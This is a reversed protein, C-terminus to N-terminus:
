ESFKLDYNVDEEFHNEGLFQAMHEEGRLNFGFFATAYPNIISFAEDHEIYEFPEDTWRREGWGCGDGDGMLSPILLCADTFTYHGGDKFELKFKPPPAIRYDYRMLFTADGMTEDELGIMWMLSAEFNDGGWPFMFSAFDITAKIRHDKRTTEVAATGGFSHGMAGVKTFDIMDTFFDDPDDISLETFKTILFSLDGKRYWFAIFVWKEDFPVMEDEFPAVLSNGTHDPAIVIFGHSALYECLTFSQFRVGANGHSFLIMPYPANETRIPADRASGTEQDFNEIEEPPVGEAELMALVEEDWNGFFNRVVDRPMEAAEDVAPYWVETVLTRASDTVPDHRAEDVHMNVSHATVIGHISVDSSELCHGHQQCSM